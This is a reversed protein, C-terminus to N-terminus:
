YTVVIMIIMMSIVGKLAQMIMAGGETARCKIQVGNVTTGTYMDQTVQGKNTCVSYKM